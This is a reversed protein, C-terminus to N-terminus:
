GQPICVLCGDDNWSLTSPRKRRTREFVNPRLRSPGICPCHGRRNESFDVIPFFSVSGHCARWVDTMTGRCHRLGKADPDERFYNAAVVTAPYVHLSSPPKGLPGQRLLGDMSLSSSSPGPNAVPLQQEWARSLRTRHHCSASIFRRNLTPAHIPM